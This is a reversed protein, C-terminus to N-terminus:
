RLRCHDREGTAHDPGQPGEPQPSFREVSAKLESRVVEQIGLDLTLQLPGQYLGEATLRSEFSREIGALGQNEIGVYGLLHSLLAKQPYVRHYETRFQIGPLGLRMIQRQQDDTIHRKVWVVRSQRRFNKALSDLKLGPLVLALKLATQDPDIVQAPDAYVSVKPYDTAILRGERDIIDARRTQNELPNSAFATPAAIPTSLLALDVLRAGLGTFLLLGLVTLVRLRARAQRLEQGVGQQQAAASTM